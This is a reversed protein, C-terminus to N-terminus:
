QGKRVPEVPRLRLKAEEWLADLARGVAQFPLRWVWRRTRMKELAAFGAGAVVGIRVGTEASAPTRKQGVRPALAPPRGFLYMWVDGTAPDVEIRTVFLRAFAQKEENTGQAFVEAFRRRCEEM